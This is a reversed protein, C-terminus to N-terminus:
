LDLFLTEGLLYRTQIQCDVREGPTLNGLEQQDAVQIQVPIYQTSGAAELPLRQAQNGIAAVTGRVHANNAKILSQQGVALKSQAEYPFWAQIWKNPSPGSTPLIVFVTEGRNFPTGAQGNIALVKGQAPSYLTGALALQEQLKPDPKPMPKIPAGGGGRKKRALEARIKNLEVELAARMRSVREFEDRAAEMRMKAMGEARVAQDWAAPSYTGQARLALQARVHETVREHYFQKYRDEEARAQAVRMAMRREDEEAASLRQSIEDGGPNQFDSLMQGSAKLSEAFARTDINALPQGALVEQGQRVLLQEITTPFSTEVTYVNTDVRAYASSLKGESLWWSFYGAVGVAILVLLLLMGRWARLFSRRKKHEPPLEIYTADSM